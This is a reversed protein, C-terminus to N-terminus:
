WLTTSPPSSARTIIRSIAIMTM